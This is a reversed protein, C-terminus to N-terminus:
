TFEPNRSRDRALSSLCGQKWNQGDHPCLQPTGLSISFSCRIGTVNRSCYQLTNDNAQKLLRVRRADSVPLATAEGGGAREAGAAGGRAGVFDADYDGAPRHLPMSVDGWLVERLRCNHFGAVILANRRNRSVIPSIARDTTLFRDNIKRWM